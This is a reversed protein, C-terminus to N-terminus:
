APPKRYGALLYAVAQEPTLTEPRFITFAGDGASLLTRLYVTPKNLRRALEPDEVGPISEHAEILSASNDVKSWSGDLPGGVFLARTM